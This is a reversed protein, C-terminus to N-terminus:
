AGPAVYRILRVNGCDACSYIDVAMGSDPTFALGDPGTEVLTVAGKNVNPTHHKWTMGGCNECGRQPNAM